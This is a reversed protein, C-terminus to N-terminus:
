NHQRQEISGRERRAHEKAQTQTGKKKEQSEITLFLVRADLPPWRQSPPVHSSTCLSSRPNISKTSPSLSAPHPPPPPPNHTPAQPSCCKHHPVRQPNTTHIYAKTNQSPPHPPLTNGFSSTILSSPSCKINCSDSQRWATNVILSHQAWASFILEATKRLQWSLGLHM